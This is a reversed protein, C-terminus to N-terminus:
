LAPRAFEEVAFQAIFQQVAFDEIAQFLRLDDYLSPALVVVPDPRM